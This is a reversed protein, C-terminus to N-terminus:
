IEAYGNLQVLDTAPLWWKRLNSWRLFFSLIVSRILPLLNPTCEGFHQATLHMQLSNFSFAVFVLNYSIIDDQFDPDM